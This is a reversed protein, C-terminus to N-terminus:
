DSIVARYLKEHEAVMREITFQKINEYEVAWLQHRKQKNKLLNIIKKATKDQNDLDFLGNATKILEPLSGVQSGLAPLGAAVAEALALGFAENVSPQIYIAWKKYKQALEEQSLGGLLTVQNTLGLNQIRLELKERLPGQGVIELRADALEAQIKAFVEILSGYNKQWTLSGVSGITYSDSLSPSPKPLALGNYIKITKNNDSVQEKILWDVVAQSVGITRATLRDLYALAKKQIFENLRNPLHYDNTWSHETYIIPYGFNRAALRGILGARVGHCHIIVREPKLVPTDDNRKTKTLLAEDRSKFTWSIRKRPIVKSKPLIDTLNDLLGKLRSIALIDFKSKVLFIRYRVKNKKLEGILPGSPCIVQSRFNFQDLGKVLALVHSPVGSLNADALIHIITLM